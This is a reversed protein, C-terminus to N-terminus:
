QSKIRDPLFAVVQTDDGMYGRMNEGLVSLFPRGLSITCLDDRIRSQEPIEYRVGALGYDAKLSNKYFIMKDELISAARDEVWMPISGFRRSYSIKIM